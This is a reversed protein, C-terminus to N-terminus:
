LNVFAQSSSPLCKMSWMLFDKASVTDISQFIAMFDSINTLDTNGMLFPLSYRKIEIENLLNSKATHRMAGNLYFLALPVAGLEHSLVNQMDVDRERSVSLLLLFLNLDTM